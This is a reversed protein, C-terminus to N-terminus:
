VSCIYIAYQFKVSVSSINLHNMGTLTGLTLAGPMLAGLTLAGPMLADLMLVFHMLAGLTLARAHIRRAHARRRCALNSM